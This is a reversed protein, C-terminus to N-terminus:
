KTLVLLADGDTTMVVAQETKEGRAVYTGGQSAVSQSLGGKWGGCCSGCYTTLLTHLNFPCYLRKVKFMRM